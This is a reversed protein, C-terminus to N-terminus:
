LKFVFLKLQDKEYGQSILSEGFQPLYLKKITLVKNKFGTINTIITGNKLEILKITKDGCGVFISENDWLCLGFLWDNNCVKIKKLLNASHFEWIRINGDFSSEIIKTIEDKNYIIVSCHRKNDNDNYIHYVKNENYDYSKIYGNNGTIIYNNSLYNDLYIDVFYTSDNSDNIDKIKNNNIDLVKIPENNGYANSTIIYNNNNDNIICASFLRGSNYVNEFNNLCEFNNVNWLKINNDSLSISLLLDIKNVKDLYYRFSTIDRKHANKIENVKINDIMNYFIISRKRNAYVLYFIDNISTFITFTNDLTYDSYSDKTIEKLLRINKSVLINNQNLDANIKNSKINENLNSKNKYENQKSIDKKFIEYKDDEKLDLQEENDLCNCDPQPNIQAPSIDKIIINKSSKNFKKFDAKNNLIDREIKTTARKIINLKNKRKIRKLDNEKYCVKM